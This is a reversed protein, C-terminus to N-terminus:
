EPGSDRTPYVGSLESWWGFDVSNENCMRYGKHRWSSVRTCMWWGTLSMDWSLFFHKMRFSINWEFKLLMNVLFNKFGLNQTKIWDCCSLVCNNCKVDEHHRWPRCSEHYADLTRFDRWTPPLNDLLHSGCKHCPQSFLTVYSHLWTQFYRHFFSTDFRSSELWEVVWGTEFSTHWHRM